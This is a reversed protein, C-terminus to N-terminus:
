PQVPADIPAPEAQSQGGALDPTAQAPVFGPKEPEATEASSTHDVASVAPKQEDADVGSVRYGDDAAKTQESPAQTTSEPSYLVIDVRRNKSRGAETANSVIPKSDGYGISSVRASDIGGKEVLYRLVGTARAKSLDWNTPYVSKLSPGIEMNDAHGEIRILQDSPADKLLEVLRDLTVYGEPKIRAEGSEYRLQKMLDALSYRTERAANQVPISDTSHDPAGMSRKGSAPPPILDAEYKVQFQDGKLIRSVSKTVLATSSRPETSLVKVEGVQRPPLAGGYRVLDMRDGPKLGDDSGRDLYVINRQAVLTMQLDAQLEVVMGTVDSSAPIVAAEDSHPLVFKMVPDGPAAAGFARLARVTTLEKDVHVVQVIALRTILYGMYHGTAPHFVKRTRKYVTYLDGVAAEDPHKLKLYLVDQQGLRMRNGTTQNDGTIVNVVGDQPTSQQISGAAYTRAAEGFRITDLDDAWALPLGILSFVALLSCGLFTRSPLTTM